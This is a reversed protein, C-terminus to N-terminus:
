ACIRAVDVEELSHVTWEPQQAALQEFPIGGTAVALCRARIAQACAIDHPTDGIVLIEDGRLPHGHWHEGRRHAIEALRNRNPDEDGFAGLVFGEWLQYHRLKIEAGLRINGTLLGLTPPHPLSALSGLFTRVGPLVRGPIQALFHDLWFVYDDLFRATNEPTPDIRCARFFEHVISLDTRGAFAIRSFGDPQRFTTRAVEAFARLGAGGSAILTGDIDFLALRIM